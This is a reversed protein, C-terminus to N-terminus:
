HKTPDVLIYKYGPEPTPPLPEGRTVTVEEGSRGGRQGIREYQGSNPAKQGPKFTPRM